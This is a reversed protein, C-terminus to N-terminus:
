DDNKLWEKYRKLFNMKYKKDTVRKCPGGNRYCHNAACNTYKDPDCRYTKKM